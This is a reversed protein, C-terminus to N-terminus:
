NDDETDTESNLTDLNIKTKGHKERFYNIARYCLTFSLNYLDEFNVCSCFTLIKQNTYLKTLIDQSNFIKKNSFVMYYFNNYDRHANCVRKSISLNMDAYMEKKLDFNVEEDLGFVHGVNITYNCEENQCDEKGCKIKKINIMGRKIGKMRIDRAKNLCSLQHKIKFDLIDELVMTRKTKGKSTVVEVELIEKNILRADPVPDQKLRISM